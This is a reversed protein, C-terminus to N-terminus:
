HLSQSGTAALDPGGAERMLRALLEARGNVNLRQYLCRVYTTVTHPSIKLKRAVDQIQDGQVLMLCIEKERGPLARVEPLTLLRLPLPVYRSVAIGFLTPMGGVAPVLGYARLTFHGWANAVGIAPVQEIAEHLAIRLKAILPKVLRQVASFYSPDSAAALGSPLAAMRLLNEATPSLHQIRGQQDAIAIGSEGSPATEGEFVGDPLSLAHALHPLAGDIHACDARTFNRSGPPRGLVMVAVPRNGDRVAVRLAHHLDVPRCIREFFESHYYRRGFEAATDYKLRSHLLASSTRMAAEELKGFYQSLYLAHLDPRRLQGAFFDTPRCAEDVWVLSCIDFGVYARLAEVLSPALLKRGFGLNAMQRLNAIGTAPKM